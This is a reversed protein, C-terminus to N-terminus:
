LYYNQTKCVFVMSYTDFTSLPLLPMPTCFCYLSCILQSKQSHFLSSQTSLKWLTVSICTKLNEYNALYSLNHYSNHDYLVADQMACNRRTCVDSKVTEESKWYNAATPANNGTCCVKAVSKGFHWYTRNLGYCVRPTQLVTTLVIDSFGMVM